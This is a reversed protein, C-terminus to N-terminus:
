SVDKISQSVDVHYFAQKIIGIAFLFDCSSTLVLRSGILSRYRLILGTSESDDFMLWIM